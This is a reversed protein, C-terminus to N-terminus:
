KRTLYNVVPTSLGALNLQGPRSGPIANNTTFPQLQGTEPNMWSFIKGVGLENQAARFAQNFSGSFQKVPQGYLQQLGDIYRNGTSPLAAPGGQTVQDAGAGPMPSNSLGSTFEDAGAGPMPTQTPLARVADTQSLADVAEGGLTAPPTAAAASQLLPTVLEFLKAVGLGAGFLAAAKGLAYGISKGNILDAVVRMVVVAIIGFSMASGLVPIGMFFNIVGLAFLVLSAAWGGKEAITLMLRLPKKLLEKFPSDESRTRIRSITAQIADDVLPWTTIKNAKDLWKKMMNLVKNIMGPPPADKPRSAHTLLKDFHEPSLHKLKEFRAIVEATDESDAEFLRHTASHWKQLDAVIDELLLRTETFMMKYELKWPQFSVSEFLTDKFLNVKPDFVIATM